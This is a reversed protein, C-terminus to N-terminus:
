QLKAFISDLLLFLERQLPALSSTRLLPTNRYYDQFDKGLQRAFRSCSRPTLYWYWELLEWLPREAEGIRQAPLRTNWQAPLRTNWQTPLRNNWQTPLGPATSDAKPLSLLRQLRLRQYPDAGVDPVPFDPIPRRRCQFLLAEDCWCVTFRDGERVWDRLM